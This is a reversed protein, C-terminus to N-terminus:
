GCKQQGSQKGLNGLYKIGGNITCTSADLLPKPQTKYWFIPSWILINPNPLLVKLLASCFYRILVKLDWIPLLLVVSQRSSLIHDMLRHTCLYYDRPINKKVAFRLAVPCLHFFLSASELKFRWQVRLPLVLMSTSKKLLNGRSMWWYVLVDVFSSVSLATLLTTLWNSLVSAHNHETFM